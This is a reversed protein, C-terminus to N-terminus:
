GTRQVSQCKSVEKTPKAMVDVTWLGKKLLHLKQDIQCIRILCHGDKGSNVWVVGRNPDVQIEVPGEYAIYPKNFSPM